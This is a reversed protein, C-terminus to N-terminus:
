RKATRDPKLSKLFIPLNKDRWEDYPQWTENAFIKIEKTRRDIHLPFNSRRDLVSVQAPRNWFTVKANEGPKAQENVTVISTLICSADGLEPKRWSGRMTEALEACASINPRARSGWKNPSITPWGDLVLTRAQDFSLLQASESKKPEDEFGRSESQQNSGTSPLTSDSKSSSQKIQGLSGHSVYVGAFLVLSLSLPIALYRNM